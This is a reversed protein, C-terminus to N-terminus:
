IYQCHMEGHTKLCKVIHVPEVMLWMYVIIHMYIYIYVDHVNNLLIYFYYSWIMRKDYPFNTTLSKNLVYFKTYVNMDNLLLCCEFIRKVFEAQPLIAQIPM